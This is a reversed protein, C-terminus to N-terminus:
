IWWFIKKLFSWFGNDSKEETKIEETLVIDCKALEVGDLLYVVEGVKQGAKYPAYIFHPLLVKKELKDTMSKEVIAFEVGKARVRVSNVPCGVADVTYEQKTDDFEVRTLRDFGYNYLKIHDDWDNPANLTVAVLTVGDKKACTVLCRGAAKTFGTKGGICYDYISLLRNHNQYTNSYNEPKVFDVKVSKQQTIERFQENEMAYAMLVAMDRASSYHNDDNLGSPTVFHTSTMGLQSARRNMMEAFGEYSKGVTLAIANAADNGSAAMLGKALDSLHVEDGIKLYMSSGEAIMEKTFTVVTDDASAAELALIATMIKTTSAMPLKKDANKEFLVEGNDVCMLISANASVDLTQEAFANVCLMNIIPLAVIVSLCRSVLNLCLNKCLM